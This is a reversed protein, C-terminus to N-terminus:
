LPRRRGAAPRRGGFHTTADIAKNNALIGGTKLLASNNGVGGFISPHIHLGGGGGGSGGAGRRRPRKLGGLIGKGQKESPPLGHNSGGGTRVGHEQPAPKGPDDPTGWANPDDTIAWPELQAGSDSIVEADVVDPNEDVGPPWYQGYPDDIDIIPPDEAQADDVPEGELVVVAIDTGPGDDFGGFDDSM